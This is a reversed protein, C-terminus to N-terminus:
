RSVLDDQGELIPWPWTWPGLLFPQTHDVGAGPSSPRQSSVGPGGRVAGHPATLVFGPSGVPPACGRLVCPSGSRCGGGVGHRWQCIQGLRHRVTLEEEERLSMFPFHRFSCM